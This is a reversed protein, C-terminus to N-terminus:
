RTGSDLNRVMGVLRRCLEIIRKVAARHEDRLEEMELLQAEALLAALPNNLTHQIRATTEGMAILQQTRRLERQIPGLENSLAPRASLDALAAPLMTAMEARSVCRAPALALLRHEMAADCADALLVVAGTYGRARLEQVATTGSLGRVQADVIMANADSGFANAFPTPETAVSPLHTALLEQILLQLAMDDTVVAVRHRAAGGESTM